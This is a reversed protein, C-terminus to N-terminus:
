AWFESYEGAVNSHTRTRSNSFQSVAVVMCGVEKPCCKLNGATIKEVRPADGLDSVQMFNDHLSISSKRRGCEHAQGRITWPTIVDAESADLGHKNALATCGHMASVEQDMSSVEVEPIELARLFKPGGHM